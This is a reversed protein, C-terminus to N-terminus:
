TVVLEQQKLGHGRQEGTTQVTKKIVVSAGVASGTGTFFFFAFIIPVKYIALVRLAHSCHKLAIKEPVTRLFHHSKKERAGHQGGVTGFSLM